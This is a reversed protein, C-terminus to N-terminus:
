RGPGEGPPTDSRLERPTETDVLSGPGHGRGHAHGGRRRDDQRGHHRGVDQGLDELDRGLQRDQGRGEDAAQDAPGSDRGAVDDLARESVEVNAQDEDGGGQKHVEELLRAAHGEDDAVDDLAEVAALGQEEDHTVTRM